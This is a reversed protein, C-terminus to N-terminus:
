FLRIELIRNVPIITGNKLSAFNDSTMWITTHVRKVTQNDVFYIKVKHKFNNGLKCALALASAREKIILESDLVDDKPFVLSPILEKEILQSKQRSRLAIM